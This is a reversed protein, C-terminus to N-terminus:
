TSVAYVRLKHEDPLSRSLLGEITCPIVAGAANRLTGARTALYRDDIRLAKGEKLDFLERLGNTPNGLYDAMEKSTLYIFLADIAGQSHIQALRFVDKILNGAKQTRPQNGESPIPRDYKFEIAFGRDGFNPIWTDIKARPIKKHPFELIIDEPSIGLAEVVAIFFTYRVADETTFVGRQLRRDLLETFKIIGPTLVHQLQSM